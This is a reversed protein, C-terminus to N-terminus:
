QADQLKVLGDSNVWYRSHGQCKVQTRRIRLLLGVLPKERYNEWQGSSSTSAAPPSTVQRLSVALSHHLHHRPKPIDTELGLGTEMWGIVEVM